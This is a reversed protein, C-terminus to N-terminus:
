RIHNKIVGFNSYQQIITLSDQFNRQFRNIVKQTINVVSLCVFLCPYFRLRRPPPLLACILMWWLIMKMQSLFASIQFKNWISFKLWISLSHTYFEKVGLPFINIHHICVVLLYSRFIGERRLQFNSVCFICSGLSHSHFMYELRLPFNSAHNDSFGHAPGGNDTTFFIISNGLMGKQHLEATLNGISDDLCSLMAAACFVSACLSFELTGQLNVM